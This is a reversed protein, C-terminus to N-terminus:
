LAERDPRVALAGYVNHEDQLAFLEDRAVIALMQYVARGQDIQGANYFTANTDPFGAPTAAFPSTEFSRLLTLLKFVERRGTKDSLVARWFDSAERAETRTKNAQDDTGQETDAQAPRESLRFNVVPDARDAEMSYDSTARGYDFAARRMM